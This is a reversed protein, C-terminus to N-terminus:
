VIRGDSKIHSIAAEAPFEQGNARLGVIQGREGMRRARVNSKGFAAVHDAHTTRYRGPILVELPQGLIAATTYGFIKEAGENFYIIRQSHDVCIIADASIRAIGALISDAIAVSSPGTMDTM